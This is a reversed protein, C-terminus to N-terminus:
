QREVSKGSGLLGSSRVLTASSLYAVDTGTSTSVLACGSREEGVEDLESVYGAVLQAYVCFRERLLLATSTLAGVKGYRRRGLKRAHFFLLM